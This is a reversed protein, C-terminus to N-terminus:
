ARYALWSARMRSIQKASFQNMCRDDSYDMYNNVPDLGPYSNGTCTDRGIPCGFAPSLEAPTDSIRDGTTSGTRCKYGEFTHYLGLWHGVEHTATHGLNYPAMSGGPLSAFNLVIGDNTSLSTAFTFTAWGLTMGGGSVTYINLASKGGKRLSRKAAQEASSGFSM